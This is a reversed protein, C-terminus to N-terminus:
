RQRQKAKEFAADIYMLTLGKEPNIVQELWHKVGTKQYNPNYVGLYAAYDFIGDKGARGATSVISVGTSSQSTPVISKRTDITEPKAVLKGDAYGWTQTKLFGTDVPAKLSAAKTAQKAIENVAEARTDEVLRELDGALQSIDKM